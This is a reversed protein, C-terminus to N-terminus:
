TGAPREPSTPGAHRCARVPPLARMPRFSLVAVVALGAAIALLATRLGALSAVTGFLLSGIPLSTMIAVRATANVRGLLEPPTLRQRITVLSINIMPGSLGLCLQGALFLATGAALPSLVLLTAGVAMLSLSVLVVVAQGAVRTFRPTLAAGVLAALGEGALVLGLTTASMGLVEVALLVQLAILGSMFLNSASAAVIVTTIVSNGRVYAIGERISTRVSGPQRAAPARRRHGLLPALLLAGVLFTAADVLLAGAASLVAVLLGALAPGCLQAVSRSLELRSNAAPLGDQPVTHPVFTQYAIDFFVAFVGAALAVALLLGMSLLGFVHALPVAAILALRAVNAVVMIRVPHGRDVWVGAVLGLLTVPLWGAATLLGMAFGSADLVQVALLPVALLTVQTGLLSVSEAAWLFGFGRPPAVTDATM